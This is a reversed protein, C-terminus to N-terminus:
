SEDTDDLADMLLIAGVPGGTIRRLSSVRVRCDISRGRRNVAPVVIDTTAGPDALASRIPQRLDDLPLGIDLSMFHQGVVEDERIGWLEQAEANWVKVRLDTSLVVVGSQLSTLIAELANNAEDAAETRARLHTNLSQLQENTSQLEENITELEENTSHLEENTTELEENTSQLEENTTELEEIASQLEDQSHALKSRLEDAELRLQRSTTVDIFAVSVGDVAGNESVLPSVHVDFSTAEGATSWEVNREIVTRQETRATDIRSRIELPDYSVRLDQLPGGLDDSGLEFLDRARRNAAGLNGSADVLLMPVPSADFGSEQLQMPLTAGSDASRLAPPSTRIRKGGAIPAYVRHHLNIAAFRDTRSAVAEARGLVLIGGHRTAFHMRELIATQTPATFYMLTNRCLLVDIKSIPPDRAIDHQGFVLAPRLDRRFQITDAEVHFYKDVLGPPIETQRKASYQARRATALAKPDYDTAYIKVRNRLASQGLLEALVIAISIAEEGTSCGVSWVRIPDHRPKAELLPPLVDDQLYSWVEPDRFFGTVNILVTDLLSNLEEADSDLQEGYASFDDIGVVSMRKRIRRTLGVGKYASLDVGRTDRVRDLVTRLDPDIQPDSTM